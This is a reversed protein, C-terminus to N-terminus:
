LDAELLQVSCAALLFTMVALLYFFLTRRM